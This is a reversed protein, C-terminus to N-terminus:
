CGHYKKEFRCDNAREQLKFAMKLIEKHNKFLAMMQQHAGSLWYWIYANQYNKAVGLGLEYAQGERRVLKNMTFSLNLGKNNPNKAYLEFYKLRWKRSEVWDQIVGVNPGIFYADELISVSKLHGNNAAKRLWEISIKKNRVIDTKPKFSQVPEYIRGLIYQAEAHGNEALPTLIAVAKAHDGELWM